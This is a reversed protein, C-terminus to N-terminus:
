FAGDGKLSVLVTKLLIKLDLKLSRKDVYEIDYDNIQMFSLKGRGNIQSLGTLGPKVCLKELHKESYYRINEIIDPRPGVLHMDGKLVNIFNPLEDLSTKRLWRGFRTVRPDNVVRSDIEVPKDFWRPDRKRGVLIKIPLKCLEERSYTYAYLEPFRDKADSYMTRFKYLMFQKGFIDQIRREDDNHYSTGKRRRNIGIRTQKFLIPGPSDIKIVLAVAIILPSTFTLILISGVIDIIRQAIKYGLGQGHFSFLSSRMAVLPSRTPSKREHRTDARDSLM